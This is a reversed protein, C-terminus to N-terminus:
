TPSRDNLLSFLDLGLSFLKKTRSYFLKKDPVYIPRLGPSFFREAEVVIKGTKSPRHNPLWDSGEGIHNKNISLEGVVRSLLYLLTFFGIWSFFIVIKTYTSDNNRDRKRILGYTSVNKYSQM